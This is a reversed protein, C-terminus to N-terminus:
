QRSCHNPNTLVRVIINISTTRNWVSLSPMSIQQDFDDRCYTSHQVRKRRWTCCKTQVSNLIETRRRSSRTSSYYHICSLKCFFQCHFYGCITSFCKLSVVFFMLLRIFCMCMLLAEGREYHIHINYALMDTWHSMKSRNRLFCSCCALTSLRRIRQRLVLRTQM